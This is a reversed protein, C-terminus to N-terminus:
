KHSYTGELNDYSQYFYSDSMVNFQGANQNDQLSNGMLGNAGALMDVNEQEDGLLEKLRREMNNRSSIFEKLLHEDNIISDSLTSNLLLENIQDIKKKLRKIESGDDAPQGVDMSLGSYSGGGIPSEGGSYQPIVSNAGPESYYVDIMYQEEMGDIAGMAGYVKDAQDIFGAEELYDAINSLEKLMKKKKSGKNDDAKDNNKFYEIQGLRKKADEKSDYTGMNRGSESYVRYKGSPLKRIYGVKKIM